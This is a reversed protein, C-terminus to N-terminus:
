KTITPLFIFDEVFAMSMAPDGQLTFAYLESPHQNANFYQLKSYQAADGVTRGNAVFLGDYFGQHLITHEHTYGLGTSSWMGASGSRNGGNDRRLYIESISNIGPYAFHGDLCDASLMFTPKFDNTWHSEDSSTLVVGEQTAAWNDISGHGRYNLILLGDRIRNFMEIRVSAYDPYDLSGLCVHQDAYNIPLHAATLVNEQCFFGGDDDDDAVFLFKTGGFPATVMLNQEYLKIKEVATEAEDVTNVSLRGIAMDALLDPDGSNPDETLMVLEHDSPILGNFRDVYLLGTPVYNVTTQWSITCNLCSIQRPNVTSDGILVVYSPAVTWNGLAYALYSRIAEPLPLGYGYQNIVDEINVVHTDLDGFLPDSRHQALSNAASEFNAHTIALWDADNGAPNLSAPVYQEVSLVSKINSETTALFKTGSPHNLGFTYTGSNVDPNSIRIPATPDTINWVIAADNTFGTVELHGSGEEDIIILQDNEAILHRMYAVTMRNFFVDQDFDVTFTVVNEGNVLANGPIDGEINVNKHGTWSGSISAPPNNITATVSYALNSNNQRDMFELLVHANPYSTDPDTIPITYAITGNRVEIEDWYWMDPENPFTAWDAQDARTFYHYLEPEKTQTYWATTKLSGNLQNSASAAHTASGGAWLWYINESIFNKEQRTGDFKWGYFRVCEDSEFSTDSDGIFQYAVDEGRHLLQLTNPNINGVDMGAQALEPQCVHYIGDENLAIKYTDTGIPLSTEPANTLNAPLSRWAQAQNYNLILSSLDAQHVNSESSLPRLGTLHAGNFAIQVDLTTAQEVVGTVPNYQVPYIQLAVMRVDRYYIPDSVTYRVSPFLQDRGYIDADEAFIETPLGVVQGLDGLVVDKDAVPVVKGVNEVVSDSAVVEVTMEAEPPLAIYTTYLPLDPAGVQATGQNLGDVQIQGSPHLHFLPTQLTFQLGTANSSVVDVEAELIQTQTSEIAFVTNNLVSTLGSIAFLTVATVLM